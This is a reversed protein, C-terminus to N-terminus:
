LQRGKLQLVARLKSMLVFLILNIQINREVMQISNEVHMFAAPFDIFDFASIFRDLTELQDFNIIYQEAKGHELLMLADRFWLLILSLIDKITKVDTSRVLHEVLDIQSKADKLCCRLFEVARERQKGFSEDLWELARSYSGQSIRSYLKAYEPEIKEREILAKEIENDPLPGLRIEQCRSLITPLMSSVHSATLILHMTDPPEELIKLLSNAAPITMKDAQAIIVVRRGELPKLTTIHRIERIKEIGITPTAWPKDRRYPNAVVSDLIAREEDVNKASSPFIFVLDPHQFTKIRRCNACANCPKEAESKCFLAKAMELALAEKGVGLPGSFLYAHHVRNHEIARSLISKARHQAIVVSFSM